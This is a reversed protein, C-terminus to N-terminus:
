TGWVDGLKNNVRLSGTSASLVVSCVYEPSERSAAPDGGGHHDVVCLLDVDALYPHGTFPQDFHERPIRCRIVVRGEVDFAPPPKLGAEM